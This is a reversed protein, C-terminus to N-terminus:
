LENIDDEEEDPLMFGVNHWGDKKCMGYKKTMQEHIEVGKPQKKNGQSDQFWIKFQEMLDRKGIKSGPQSIVMENIFGSIHDQGQRYQNSAIMVEDCPTVIGQTEFALKTLMSLFVPAWQTLKEKLQPDKKFKYKPEEILTDGDDVFKSMFDVVRIRRWTGDDNSGVEFLTNTCVVLHFQIAFSEAEHYLARAQMKSDGTLQKMMGENIRADKSPEQMLAFRVGKLQMIESSTNGIGVRKETVLTVPIDAYYEGLVFSM